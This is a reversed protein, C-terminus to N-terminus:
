ADMERSTIIVKLELVTLVTIKLIKDDPLNEWQSTLRQAFDSNRPLQLDTIMTGDDSMAHVQDDDINVVEYEIRKSKPKPLMDHSGAISEVKRNTEVDIGIFHIKAHGHKGPKSVSYNVIRVPRDRLVVYEGNRFLNAHKPELQGEYRDYLTSM